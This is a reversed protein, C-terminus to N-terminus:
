TSNVALLGVSTARQDSPKAGCTANFGHDVELSAISPPHLCPNPNPSGHRLIATAKVLISERPHLDANFNRKTINANDDKNGNTLRKWTNRTNKM